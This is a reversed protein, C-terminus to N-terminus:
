RMEDALQGEAGGENSLRLTCLIDRLLPESNDKGPLWLRLWYYGHVYVLNANLVADRVMTQTMALVMEDLSSASVARLPPFPAKLLEGSGYWFENSALLGGEVRIGHMRECARLLESDLRDEFCVTLQEPARSIRLPLAGFAEVLPKPLFPAMREPAFAGVRFVPCQWQISLAAAFDEEPLQTQQRLWTGLRGAGTLRQSRLARELQAETIVGQGVLIEGIRVRTGVALAAATSLGHERALTSRLMEELCEASCPRGGAFVCGGQDLSWRGAPKQCEANSCVADEPVRNTLGGAAQVSHAPMEIAGSQPM